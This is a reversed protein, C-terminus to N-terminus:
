NRGGPSPFYSGTNLFRVRKGTRSLGTQIESSSLENIRTRETTVDQQLDRMIRDNRQVNSYFQQQPVARLLTQGTFGAVAGPIMNLAPSLVPTQNRQLSPPGIRRSPAPGMGAVGLQAYGASEGAVGAFIAVVITPLLKRM